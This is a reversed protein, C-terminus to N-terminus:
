SRYSGPTRGTWRKFAARFNAPDTFGVNEAINAVSMRTNRLYNIALDRRINDVINQFTTGQAELKRRLTRSTMALESAVTEANPMNTPDRMLLDAIRRILANQSAQESLLQDCMEKVMTETIANSQPLPKDLLQKQFCIEARDHDFYVPCGLIAQYYEANAPKPYNLKVHCDFLEGGLIDKLISLVVSIQFEVNFRQVNNDFLLNDFSFHALDDGEILTMATTPTALKHYDISFNLTNRLTASTLLAFGYLGYDSIHIHQGAKLALAPDNSLRQMNAFVTALQQISTRTEPSSLQEISLATSALVDTAQFGLEAMFEALVKFKFSYYIRDDVLFLSSNQTM